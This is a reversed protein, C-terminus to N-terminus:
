YRMSLLKNIKFSMLHTVECNNWLKVKVSVKNFHWCCRWGFRPTMLVGRWPWGGSVMGMMISSILSCRRSSLSCCCGALECEVEGCGSCRVSEGFPQSNGLMVAEWPACRGCWRCSRDCEIPNADTLEVSPCQLQSGSSSSSHDVGAFRWSVSKACSTQASRPTGTSCCLIIM